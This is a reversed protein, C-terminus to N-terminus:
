VGQVINGTFYLMDDLRPDFTLLQTLKIM